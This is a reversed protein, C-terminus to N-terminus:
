AIPPRHPPTRASSPPSSTTLSTAPGVPAPVDLTLDPFTPLVSAVTGVDHAHLVTSDAPGSSGSLEDGEPSSDVPQLDAVLRAAHDHSRDGDAHAHIEGAPVGSLIMTALLLVGALRGIPRRIWLSMRRELVRLSM